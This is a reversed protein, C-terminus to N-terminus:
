FKILHIKKILSFKKILNKICIFIFRCNKKLAFNNQRFNKRKFM